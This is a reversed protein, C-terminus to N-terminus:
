AEGRTQIWRVEIDALLIRFDGEFSGGEVALCAHDDIVAQRDDPHVRDLLTQFDIRSEPSLGYLERYNASVRAGGGAGPANM